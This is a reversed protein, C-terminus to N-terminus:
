NQYDHERWEFLLASFRLAVAYVGGRGKQYSRFSSQVTTIFVLGLYWFSVLYLNKVVLVLVVFLTCNSKFEHEWVAGSIADSSNWVKSAEVSVVLFGEFHWFRCGSVLSNGWDFLFSRRRLMQYLRRQSAVQCSNWRIHWRTGVQM